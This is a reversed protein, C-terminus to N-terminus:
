KHGRPATPKLEVCYAEMNEWIIMKMEKSLPGQRTPKLKGCNAEMSFINEIWPHHTQGQWPM